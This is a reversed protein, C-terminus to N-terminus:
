RLLNLEDGSEAEKKNNNENNSESDNESSENETGGSVDESLDYKNKQISELLENIKEELNNVLKTKRTGSISSDKEVQNKRLSLAFIRHENDRFKQAYQDAAEYNSQGIMVWYNLYDTNTRYQEIAKLINNKQESNLGSSKVASVAAMYRAADPLDTEDIDSLEKCTGAYDEAFYMDTASLITENVKGKVLIEYGALVIALIMIIGFVPLLIRTRKVRSRKIQVFDRARYRREKDVAASLVETVEAVSKAASVKSLIEDGAFLDAGGKRFDDFRHEPDLTAGILAKYELLFCEKGDSFSRDAVLPRFAADALLNEPNLSFSYKATLDYLDGANILFEYKDLLSADKVMRFDALGRKDFCFRYYDEEESIKCRVLRGADQSLQNIRNGGLLYETKLHRIEFNESNLNNEIKVAASRIGGTKKKIIKM